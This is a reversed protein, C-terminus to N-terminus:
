RVSVLFSNSAGPGSPYRSLTGMELLTCSRHSEHFVVYLGKCVYRLHTPKEHAYGLTVFLEVCGLTELTLIWM